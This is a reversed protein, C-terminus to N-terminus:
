RGRTGAFALLLDHEERCAPCGRLHAEMPAAWPVSREGALEHEVYRDLAAFCEECSLEPGSPGLLRKWITQMKM